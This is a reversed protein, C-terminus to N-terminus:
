VIPHRNKNQEHSYVANLTALTIVTTFSLLAVHCSPSPIPGLPLHEFSPSSQSRTALQRCRVLVHDDRRWFLERQLAVRATGHANQMHSTACQVRLTRAAQHFCVGRSPMDSANAGSDKLLSVNSPPGCGRLLWDLMAASKAHREQGDEKRRRRQL